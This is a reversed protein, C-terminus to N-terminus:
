LGYFTAWNKQSVTYMLSSCPFQFLPLVATIRPLVATNFVSQAITRLRDIPKDEQVTAEHTASCVAKDSSSSSQVIFIVVYISATNRITKAQIYHTQMQLPAKFYLSTTSSTIEVLIDPIPHPHPL